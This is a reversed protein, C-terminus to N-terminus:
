VPLAIIPVVGEDRRKQLNEWVLDIISTRDSVEFGEKIVLISADNFNRNIGKYEVSKLSELIL